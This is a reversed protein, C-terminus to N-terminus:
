FNPIYLIMRKLLNISDYIFNINKTEGSKRTLSLAKKDNKISVSWFGRVVSVLDLTVRTTKLKKGGLSLTYIDFMICTTSFIIHIQTNICPM